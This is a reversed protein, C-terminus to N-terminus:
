PTMSSVASPVTVTDSTMSTMGKESVSSKSNTEVSKVSMCEGDGGEVSKHNEFYEDLIEDLLRTMPRRRELKLFYLRRVNEESMVPQYM